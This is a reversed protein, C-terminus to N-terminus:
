GDVPPTGAIADNIDDSSGRPFLTTILPLLDTDLADKAVFGDAVSAGASRYAQTDHLSVLVVVIPRIQAKLRRAVELGNLDPMAIDLVVLDPQLRRVQELADRGSRAFGVVTLHRLTALAEAIASLYAPHDDVLLVRIMVDQEGRLPDILPTDELWTRFRGLM